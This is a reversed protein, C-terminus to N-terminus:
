GGEWDPKGVVCVVRGTLDQSDLLKHLFLRPDWRILLPEDEGPLLHRVVLRDSRVFYRAAGHEVEDERETASRAGDTPDFVLPVIGINRRRM